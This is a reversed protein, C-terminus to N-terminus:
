AHQINQIYMKAISLAKELANTEEYYTIAFEHIIRYLNIDKSDDKLSLAQNILIELRPDDFSRNIMHVCIESVIALLPKTEESGKDNHAKKFSKIAEAYKGLCWFLYGEYFHYYPLAYPPIKKLATMSAEYMSAGFYRYARMFYLQNFFALMGPSEPRITIQLNELLVDAEDFRNADVLNKVVRLDSEIKRSLNAFEAHHKSAKLGFELANHVNFRSDYIRALFSLTLAYVKKEGYLELNRNFYFLADDINNTNMHNYGMLLNFVLRQREDLLLYDAEISRLYKGLFDKKIASAYTELMLLYDIYLVSNLYDEKEAQIRMFIDEVHAHQKRYVAEHLLNINDYFRELTERETILRIDVEEYLMTLTEINPTVKATEIDSILAHSLRLSRAVGRLSYGKDKRLSKFRKGLMRLNSKLYLTEAM